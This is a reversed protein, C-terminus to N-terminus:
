FVASYVSATCNLSAPEIALLLRKYDGSCESEIAEVLPTEYMEQYADKVDELDIQNCVCVCVCVCVVCVCVCVCVSVCARACM